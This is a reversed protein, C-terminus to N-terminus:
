YICYQKLYLVMDQISILEETRNQQRNAIWACLLQKHTTDDLFLTQTISINLLVFPYKGKIERHVGLCVCVFM